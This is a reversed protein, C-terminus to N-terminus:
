PMVAFNIHGELQNVELCSECLCKLARRTKSSMEPRKNLIQRLIIGFSYIDSSRSPPTSGSLVEPAVHNTEALEEKQVITLPKAFEERCAKSFGILVPNFLLGAPELIVNSITLNNHAVHKNQLYSLGHEIGQM